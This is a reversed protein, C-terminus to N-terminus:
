PELILRQGRVDVVVEDFESLFDMGLLGGVELGMSKSMDELDMVVIQRDRWVQDGVKLTANLYAGNGVYGSGDVPRVRQGLGLTMVRAAKASLVTRNSGTDVVLWTHTGNIEGEILMVRFAEGFRFPIAHQKASRPCLPMAAGVTLVMMAM